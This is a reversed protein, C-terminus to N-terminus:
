ISSCARRSLLSNPMTMEVPPPPPQGISACADALRRRLEEQRVRQAVRRTSQTLESTEYPFAM